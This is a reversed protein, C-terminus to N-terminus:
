IDRKGNKNEKEEVVTIVNQNKYFCFLVVVWEHVSVERVGPGAYLGRYSDNSRALNELQHIYLATCFLLSTHIICIIVNFSAHIFQWYSHM